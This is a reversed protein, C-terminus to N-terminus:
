AKPVDFLHELKDLAGKLRQVIEYHDAFAKTAEEVVEVEDQAKTKVVAVGNEVDAALKNIQVELKLLEAKADTEIIGLKTLIWTRSEKFFASAAAFGGAAFLSEIIM